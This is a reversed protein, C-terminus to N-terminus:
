GKSEDQDHPIFGYVGDETFQDGKMNHVCILQDHQAKVVTHQEREEQLEALLDANEGELQAVKLEMIALLLESIPRFWEGRERADAFRQHWATEDQESGDIQLIVVLKGPCGTQLSRLRNEVEGATFGIKILQTADDRIFYIM